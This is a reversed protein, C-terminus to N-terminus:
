STSVPGPRVGVIGKAAGTHKETQFFELFTRGLGAPAGAIFMEGRFSRKQSLRGPEFNLLVPDLRGPDVGRADWCGDFDDPEPKATVFSGDVYVAACGAGALNAVAAALGEFLWSRRENYAFRLGVEALSAWHIGPPLVAFPAGAIAVFDPIM